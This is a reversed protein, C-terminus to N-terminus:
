YEEEEGDAGGELGDEEPPAFGEETAYLVEMISKVLPLEENDHEQSV